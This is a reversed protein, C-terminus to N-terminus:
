RNTKARLFDRVEAPMISVPALLPPGSKLTLFWFHESEDIRTVDSWPISRQSASSQTELRDDFLKWVIKRHTFAKLSRLALRRIYRDAFPPCFYVALKFLLLLQVLCGLVFLAQGPWWNWGWFLVALQALLLVTMALLLPAAPHPVGQRRLLAQVQRRQLEFLALSAQVALDDTLEYEFQQLM